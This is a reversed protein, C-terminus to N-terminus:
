AIASSSRHVIFSVQSVQRSECASSTAELKPCRGLNDLCSSAAALRTSALNRSESAACYMALSFRM